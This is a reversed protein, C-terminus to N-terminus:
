LYREIYYAIWNFSRKDKDNFDILKFQVVKPIHDGTLLRKFHCVKEAVGLCCYKDDYFLTGNGQIYEGSRLAKVWKKKDSKKLKFKM